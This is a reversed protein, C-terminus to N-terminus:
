KKISISLGDGIPLVSTTLESDESIADLFMRLRKVITIKRRILPSSKDIMGRFLVNDCILLGGPRLIRKCDGLMHIYHGKNGDLFVADYLEDERKLVEGADDMILNINDDYGYKKINNKAETYRIEDREVTKVFSDEGMIDAFVCASYGVAAGVEFLRKAGHSKLIIEILREVDETIIPIRNEKAEKRFSSLHSVESNLHLLGNLYEKTIEDIM